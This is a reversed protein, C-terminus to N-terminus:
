GGTAPAWTGDGRLYVTTSGPLKPAFGHATTSVNGATIDSPAALSDLALPDSGGARHNVAHASPPVTGGDIVDNFQGVAAKNWPTGTQGSGDDDILSNLWSRNLAM